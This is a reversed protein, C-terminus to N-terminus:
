SWDLAPIVWTWFLWAPPAALLPSDFIDLVGGLGPLAAGSDEVNADRKLLSACLDGAVAYVGMILGFVALGWPFSLPGPPLVVLGTWCLYGGVLLAILVATAVGGACGEWTKKPSLWPIMKHRGFALGAFLAGADTVKVVIMSYIILAAGEAGGIEMRLKTLYGALGGAYFTIFITTGLNGMVNTTGAKLAQILFATGVLCAMWLMGWGEDELGLGPSANFAVYPGIVLGAGFLQALSQSPRYGLHRAFHTLERTTLASLSLTILTALLGNCVWPGLDVGLLPWSPAPRAALFGDLVLLATLFSALSVGVIVRKRLM